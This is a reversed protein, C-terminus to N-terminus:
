NAESATSRGQKPLEAAREPCSRRGHVLLRPSISCLVMAKTARGGVSLTLKGRLVRMDIRRRARAEISIIRNAPMGRGALGAPVGFTSGKPTTVCADPACKLAALIEAPAVM